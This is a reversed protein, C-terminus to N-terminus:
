QIPDECVIWRGPTYSTGPGDYYCAISLSGHTVVPMEFSHWTVTVAPPIGELPGIAELRRVMRHPRVVPRDFAVWFSEDAAEALFTDGSANGLIGFKGARKLLTLTM